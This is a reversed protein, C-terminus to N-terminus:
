DAEPEPVALPDLVLEDAWGDHEHAFAPGAVWIRVGPHTEALGAVYQKLTVRHFHTSASLTVADAGLEEVAATLEALPVDAGLFQARWGALVFRDALMRLGLDHYEDTPAALLVTATREAPATEEVRLACSEVITRVVGTAFHEQWVETTGSQWAAGIEVLMDSLIRYLAEISVSGDDVAHLAVAVARPRDYVALAEALVERLSSRDTM